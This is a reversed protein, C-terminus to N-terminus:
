RKLLSSKKKKSELYKARMEVAQEPPVCWFGNVVSIDHSQKYKIIAKDKDIVEYERAEMLQTDVVFPTVSNACGSTVLTILCLSKLAFRKM